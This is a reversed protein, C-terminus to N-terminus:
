TSQVKAYGSTMNHEIEELRSAIQQQAELRARAIANADQSTKLLSERETKTEDKISRRAMTIIGWTFASGIVATLVGGVIFGFVFSSEM